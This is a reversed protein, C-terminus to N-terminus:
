RSVETAALASAKTGRAKRPTRRPQVPAAAPATLPLAPLVAEPAASMLEQAEPHLGAGTFCAALLPDAPPRTLVVRAALLLQVLATHLAECEGLDAVAGPTARLWELLGDAEEPACHGAFVALPTEGALYRIPM